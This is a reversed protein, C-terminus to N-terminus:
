RPGTPDVLSASPLTKTLKHTTMFRMYQEPNRRCISNLHAGFGGGGGDVGMCGGGMEDSQKFPYEIFCLNATRRDRLTCPSYICM